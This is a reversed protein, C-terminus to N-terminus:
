RWGPTLRVVRMLWRMSRAWPAKKMWLPVALPIFHQSSVTQAETYKLIGEAGHRRGIGSQRMGGQPASVTGWAATYAENINVTGVRLQGAMRRALAVDRTWISGNLGYDGANALRIAEGVTDFPYLSVVPGFTEDQYLAMSDDVGSLITPAFFYPGLEPLPHGGTHITAGKQRADEVHARVKELQAASSLSGLDASFDLAANQVMNETFRVFAKLFHDFISRQVYIREFSMCLQGTNSFAARAAGYVAGKLEADSLVIMPNKGGLEMSCGILQQGAQQAVIRGTATSGTFCLYDIGAILSPGIDAGYGTVIQFVDAPLGSAILAERVMLATFPTLESPKLIVANGAMLAPLADTAALSLPYNWPAIIGVVGVPLRQVRSRTIAPLTSKTRRKKLFAAGHYAYYRAVNPTDIAEELAHIRAKGTEWQIMDLWHAQEAILRDHFALLVAKREALPVQSWAAQAPRARDLALQVDAGGGRPISGIKQGNLPSCVAITETTQPSSTVLQRLTEIHAPSAVPPPPTAPYDRTPSPAPASTIM